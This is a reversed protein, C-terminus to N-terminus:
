DTPILVVFFGLYFRLFLGFSEVAYVLILWCLLLMCQADVLRLLFCLLTLWDAVDFVLRLTRVAWMGACIALLEFCGVAIPCPCAFVAVPLGLGGRQGVCFVSTPDCCMLWFLWFLWELCDVEFGFLASVCGFGFGSSAVMLCSPHFWWVAAVALSSFVSHHGRCPFSAGAWNQSGVALLRFLRSGFSSGDTVSSHIIWSDLMAAPSCAPLTTVDHLVECVIAVAHLLCRVCLLRLVDDFEGLWGLLHDGDLTECGFLLSPWASGTVSIGESDFEPLVMECGDDDFDVVSLWRMAVGLWGRRPSPGGSVTFAVFGIVSFALPGPSRAASLQGPPRVVTSPPSTSSADCVPTSPCPWAFSENVLFEFIVSWCHVSDPFFYCLDLVGVTVLVL